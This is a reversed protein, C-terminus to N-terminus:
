VARDAHGDGLVDLVRDELDGCSGLRGGTVPVPLDPVTGPDRVDDGAEAHRCGLVQDGLDADAHGDERGSPV